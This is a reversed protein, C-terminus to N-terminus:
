KKVCRVQIKVSPCINMMRAEAPEGYEKRVDMSVHLCIDVKEEKYDRMNPDICWYTGVELDGQLIAIRRPITCGDGVPLFITNSGSGFQMGSVGNIKTWQRTTKNLSKLEDYAPLRWGEPCAAQADSFNYVKGKDQPLLVFAGKDGVNRTAWKVGNITVYEPINAAAKQNYEVAQQRYKEAREGSSNQAALTYYGAAKLYDQAVGYGNAYLMGMNGLAAENSQQAAKETWLLAQAYDKAVGLGEIYLYGMQTQAADDGNKAAIAYWKAAETYNKEVGNGFFYCHGLGRHASVSGKDVAQRYFEVALKYNQQVVNGSYCFDGLRCLANMNGNEASKKFWKLVETWGGEIHGFRYLDGLAYQADADEKEAAKLYWEAAATYNRADRYLDGVDKMAPVNGHAAAKKYWEMAKDYSQTVGEGYRYLGAINRMSVENNKEAAKLYWEFAKAKNATVGEGNYYAFGINNMARSNGKEAAKLYWEMAKVYDGIADAKKAEKFEHMEAEAEANQAVASQLGVGFIIATLVLFIKKM